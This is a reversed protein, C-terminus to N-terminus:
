PDVEARLRRCDPIRITRGSVEILGEKEMRSLTRSLTEGVTGLLRALDSKKTDIVVRCCREGSCSTLLHSALRQRVTRLSLTEIRKNLVLCKRALLDLFFRATEPDRRIRSFVAKRDFFYTESVSAAQAFAPFSDAAFVVAEGIFDGPGARILEVERGREDM